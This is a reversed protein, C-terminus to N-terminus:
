TESFVYPARFTDPYTLGLNAFDPEKESIVRLITEAGLSREVYLDFAFQEAYVGQERAYEGVIARAASYAHKTAALPVAIELVCPMGMASLVSRIAEDKQFFYVAEGGWHSLLPAVGYDDIPIPHSTMWFKNSRAARQESHFPSNTFIRDALARELTSARVQREIRNKLSELTSLHIGTLKVAAVEDETMRAYHWARITRLNMDDAFAEVFDMYAGAHPNSPMVLTHDSAERELYLTRDMLFYATILQSNDSLRRLLVDDWKASDWVDLVSGLSM